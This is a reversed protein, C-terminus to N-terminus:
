LVMALYAYYAPAALLLGDFRDLIGGHGPLITGSDKVGAARKFASELLDGLTGTIGILLGAVSWELHSLQTWRNGLMWGIAMALVIGGLTGEITKNPSVSPMLKPKGLSRGVVYAGTDNSWLMVMAGLFVEHGISVLHPLLAFPIAIYLMELALGGSAQIPRPDKSRLLVLLCLIWAAATLGFASPWNWQPAIAVAGIAAYVIAIFLGTIPPATSTHTTRLRVLERGGIICVPLFLLFTTFPGALAAGVTLAVYIAGTMARTTLEKM